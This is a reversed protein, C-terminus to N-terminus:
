IILKETFRYAINVPPSLLRVSPIRNIQFFVGIKVYVLDFYRDTDLDRHMLKPM